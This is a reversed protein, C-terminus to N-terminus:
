CMLIKRVTNEWHSSIFLFNACSFVAWGTLSCRSWATYDCADVWLLLSVSWYNHFRRFTFHAILPNEMKNKLKWPFSLHIWNKWKCNCLENAPVPPARHIIIISLRQRFPWYLIVFSILRLILVPWTSSPTLLPAAL